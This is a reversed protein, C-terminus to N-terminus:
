FLSANLNIQVDFEGPASKDLHDKFVGWMKAHWDDPVAPSSIRLVTKNQAHVPLSYSIASAAGAAMLHRRTLAGPAVPFRTQM